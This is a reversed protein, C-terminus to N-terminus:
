GIKRIRAEGFILGKDVEPNGTYNVNTEGYCTVKLREVVNVRFNSEGYATIKTEEAVMNETNVESEGYARFVQRSVNGKGIELYSSGYIAVTLEDISVADFYVKAAGYLSMKFDNSTFQNKCRVIEEGRISLNELKRYTVTVSAMTGNYLSKSGRWRDNSIRESKTVVKAGDLYLRLTRGEVEVNIKDLSIKANDVVVSEEEGEVLNVEIHPSVILKDFSKVNFTKEQAQIGSAMFTIALVFLLKKM